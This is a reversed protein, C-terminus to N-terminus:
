PGRREFFKPTPAISQINWEQAVLPLWCRHMVDQDALIDAAGRYIRETLLEIHNEERIKPFIGSFKGKSDFLKSPQDYAILCRHIRSQQIRCFIQNDNTACTDAQLVHINLM